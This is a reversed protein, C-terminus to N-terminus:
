GTGLRDGDRDWAEFVRDVRKYLASALLPALPAVDWADVASREGNSLRITVRAPMIRNFPPTAFHRARAHQFDTPNFIVLATATTLRTPTPPIPSRSSSSSSTTTAASSSSSQLAMLYQTEPAAATKSPPCIYYLTQGHLTALTIDQAMDLTPYAPLIYKLMSPIMVPGIFFIPPNNQLSQSLEKPTFNNTPVRLYSALYPTTHPPSIPCLRDPIDHDATADDKKEKELLAM